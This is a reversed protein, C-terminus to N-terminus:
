KKSSKKQMEQLKKNSEQIQELKQQWKSQTVPKKKNEQIRAHIKEENIIFKQIILQLLLTVVNSVTYYWTLAAPLSNFIFLLMVPFIYIMYKFVPNDQQPTMQTNYVSILLSTLTATITFLSVHDGYWPIHFPLTAISDYGSLDSAWLFREGRLSLMANFFSYLAFFIPIQLLAPICGGLPNVGAQRFLKMQEMSFAQQDDGLRKKIEDLEPKLVKMKAGSLYSTYTLPSIILRIFLTLLLIVIGLSAINNHLFDFVPMIVWRNIYKVFAFIGYGLQVHNELQYGYQKLLHYDNPGFYLKLPINIDSAGSMNFVFQTNVKMVQKLSDAEEGPVTWESKVESFNNPAIVSTNFFQQKVGLWKTGSGLSRSDGTGAADFNYEENEYYGVNSQGKEYKLDKELQAAIINWQVTLKQNPIIQAVGNVSLNWDIIYDNKRLTFIHQIKQGSQTNATYIIQQVSDSSQGRVEALYDVEASTITIGSSTKVPYIFQHLDKGLVVPSGDFNKHQKLTVSKPYGGKNTFSVKILDNEIVTIKEIASSKAILGLSLSDPGLSAGATDKIQPKNAQIQKPIGAKQLALSDKQKKEALYAAQQKNTVFIYGFLLVMLLVFGITTNRDLNM